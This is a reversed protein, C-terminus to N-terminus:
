CGTMFESMEGGTGGKVARLMRDGWMTAVVCVLLLLGLWYLLSYGMIEFSLVDKLGQYFDDSVGM